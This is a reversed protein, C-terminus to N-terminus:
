AIRIVTMLGSMQHDMVHCHLMWNGPNDAVFACDVTDRPALLVTDAWQQYPVATGNRSLVRLSHGHFHIPHQWATQNRITLVVSRGREITILPRMDAQGDGTMSTGNIAWSAGRGMGGMGGLGMM